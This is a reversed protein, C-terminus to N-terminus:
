VNRQRSSRAHKKRPIWGLGLILSFGSGFCALPAHIANEVDECGSKAVSGWPAAAYPTRVRITANPTTGFSPNHCYRPM